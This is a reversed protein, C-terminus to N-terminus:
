FGQWDIYAVIAQELRPYQSAMSNWKRIEAINYRTKAVAIAYNSCYESCEPEYQKLLELAETNRHLNLLVAAYNNVVLNAHNGEEYAKKFLFWSQELCSQYDAKPQWAMEHLKYAESIIDL